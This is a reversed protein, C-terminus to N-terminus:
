DSYLGNIVDGYRENVIRRKVKPTPAHASVDWRLEVGGGITRIAIEDPYKAVTRQFAETLTGAQLPCNHATLQV